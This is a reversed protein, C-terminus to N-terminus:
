KELVSFRSFRAVEIKEGFKQVYMKILDGVTQDNNKIYPQDILTMQALYASIKGELMKKKIEEPKGAGTKEVEEAFMAEIKKLEDPDVDERKIYKPNMAVIHMAIDYSLTKFEPNKAVFDSESNLEIIAGATGSSHLYANVVGAKLEREAKKEAIEGSKKKLLMLAKDMDGNAEELAKKCQMVSIGTKDRLQKIQDSTIAM